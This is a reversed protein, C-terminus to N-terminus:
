FYVVPVVGGDSYSGFVQVVSGEYQGLREEVMLIRGVEKVKPWVQLFAFISPETVVKLDEMGFYLNVDSYGNGSTENEKVCATLM